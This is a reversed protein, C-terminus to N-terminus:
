KGYFEEVEEKELNNYYNKDELNIRYFKDELNEELNLMNKDWEGSTDDRIMWRM